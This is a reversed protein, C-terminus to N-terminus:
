FEHGFAEFDRHYTKKVLEVLKDSTYYESYHSRMSMNLHPLEMKIGRMKFDKEIEKLNEFRYVKNVIVENNYTLFDIQNRPQKSCQHLLWQEFTMQNIILYDPGGSWRKLYFYMSVLLDFPNRVVCFSFCKRFEDEGLYDVISDAQCHKFLPKNSEYNPRLMKVVKEILTRDMKIYEMLGSAISTGGTKYIHIFILKHKKSYIM